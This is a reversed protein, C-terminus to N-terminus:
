WAPPPSNEVVHADYPSVFNELMRSGCSTRWGKTCFIDKHAL